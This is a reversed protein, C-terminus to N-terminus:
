KSDLTRHTKSVKKSDAVAAKSDASAETKSDDVVLAVARTPDATVVKRSGVSAVSTM